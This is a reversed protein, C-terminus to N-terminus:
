IHGALEYASRVQAASPAGAALLHNAALLVAGVTGVVRPIQADDFGPIGLTFRFVAVDAEEGGFGLM